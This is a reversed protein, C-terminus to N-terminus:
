EYRLADAPNTNGARISQYSITLLAILYAGVSTALFIWLPLSIRYAYLQIYKNFIIYAIPWAFINAILVWRTFNGSLRFVINALTSGFVKRVGIEKTRVETNYLALGFLGLCAIVIALLAIYLLVSGMKQEANYVENFVEDYFHYEFPEESDISRWVKEVGSLFRATNDTRFRVLLYDYGM